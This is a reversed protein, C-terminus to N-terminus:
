YCDWSYLVQSFDRAALRAPDIFFAGVGADGWMMEDDSDLQLLLRLASGAPRPDSQAFHPYGGVKHGSATPMAREALDGQDVGWAKAQQMVWDYPEFGVVTEFDVDTASIPEEGLEFRMRRPRRPDHPTDCPAGCSPPAVDPRPPSALDAVYRVRFAHQVQLAESTTAKLDMGYVFRADSEAIYFQLMGREPYGQMVPLEAFNLQALLVMPRGDPARPAEEGPRLYPAGGVKSVLVDDTTMAVLRVRAVARRSGELRARFPALAEAIQADTARAKASAAMLDTLRRGAEPRARIFSWAVVVMVGFGVAVVTAWRRARRDVAVRAETLGSGQGGHSGEGAETTLDGM